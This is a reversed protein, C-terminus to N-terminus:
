TAGRWCIITPIVVTSSPVASAYLYIGGNYSECIPAFNGGTADALSFIVEAIMTSTVGTIAVSARYGYDAYTSNTAWATTAVSVNNRIVQIDASAWTTAYDSSSSKKLVQGQSGGSPVGVGGSVAAVWSNNDKIKFQAM